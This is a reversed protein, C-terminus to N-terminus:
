AGPAITLGLPIGGVAGILGGAPSGDVAGITLPAGGTFTLRVGAPKAQKLLRYANVFTSTGLTSLEISFGAPYSERAIITATPSIGKAIALLEEIRGNSLNVLIRVRIATRYVDDIRDSRREGVRRGLLDLQDGTATDVDFANHHAWQANEIEQVQDTLATLLAQNRPGDRFYDILHSIAEATHEANLSYVGDVAGTVPAATLIEDTGYSVEVTM